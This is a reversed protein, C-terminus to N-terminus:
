KVAAESERLIDRRKKEYWSSDTATERYIELLRLAEEYNGRRRERRIRLLIFEPRTTDVLADLQKFTAEFREEHRQPDEIPRVELVAPLEMYGLARGKRYLADAMWVTREDAAWDTAKVRAIVRDAAAVIEDLRDKRLSPDDLAVLLEASRHLSDADRQWQQRAERLVEVPKSGEAIRQEHRAAVAAPTVAAPPSATTATSNLLWGCTFCVLLIARSPSLFRGFPSRKTVSAPLALM